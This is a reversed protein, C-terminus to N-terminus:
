RRRLLGFFTEINNNNGENNEGFVTFEGNLGKDWVQVLYLSFAGDVGSPGTEAYGVTMYIVNKNRAMYSEVYTLSIDHDSAWENLRTNMSAVIKDQWGKDNYAVQMRQQTFQRGQQVNRFDIGVVVQGQDTACKVFGETIFCSPPIATVLDNYYVEMDARAVTSFLLTIILILTRM